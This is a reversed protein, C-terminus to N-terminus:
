GWRYAKFRQVDAAVSHSHLHVGDKVEGVVAQRESTTTNHILVITNASTRYVMDDTKPTGLNSTAQSEYPTM